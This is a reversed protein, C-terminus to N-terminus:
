LCSCVAVAPVTKRGAQSFDLASFRDCEQAFGLHEVPYVPLIYYYSITTPYLLLPMGVVACAVCKLRVNTHFVPKPFPVYFPRCANVMPLYLLRYLGDSLRGFVRCMGYRVISLGIHRHGPHDISERPVRKRERVHTVHALSRAKCPKFPVSCFSGRAAPYCQHSTM